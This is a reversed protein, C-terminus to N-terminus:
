DHPPVWRGDRYAYWVVTQESSLERPRVVASPYTMRLAVQLGEASEVGPLLADVAQRFGVDERPNALVVPKKAEM